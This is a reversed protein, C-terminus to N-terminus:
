DVVVAAAAVEEEQKYNKKKKKEELIVEFEIRTSGIIVANRVTILMNDINNIVESRL